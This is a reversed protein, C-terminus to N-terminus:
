LLKYYKTRASLKSMVKKNCCFNKEFFSKIEDTLFYHLCMDIDPYLDIIMKAVEYKGNELASGLVISSVCM